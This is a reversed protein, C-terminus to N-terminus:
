LLVQARDLPRSCLPAEILNMWCRGKALRGSSGRELASRARSRGSSLLVDASLLRLIKLEM